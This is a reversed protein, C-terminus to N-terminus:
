PETRARLEPSWVGAGGAQRALVRFRYETDPELDRVDVSHYTDATMEWDSHDRFDTTGWEVMGITPRDTTWHVTLHDSAVDDTWVRTIQVASRQRDYRDPDNRYGPDNRYDPYPTPNVSPNPRPRSHRNPKGPSPSTGKPPAKPKQPKSPTKPRQPASPKPSHRQSETDLTGFTGTPVAQCAGLLATLVLSVSLTRAAKRM